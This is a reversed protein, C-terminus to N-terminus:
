MLNYSNLIVVLLQHLLRFVEVNPKEVDGIPRPLSKNVRILCGRSSKSTSSESGVSEDM